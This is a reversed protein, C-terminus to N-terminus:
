RRRKVGWLIVIISLPVEMNWRGGKELILIDRWKVVEKERAEGVKVVKM